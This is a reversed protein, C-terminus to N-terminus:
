RPLSLGCRLKATGGWGRRDGGLRGPSVVGLLPKGSLGKDALTTDAVRHDNRERVVGLLQLHHISSVRAALVAIMKADGGVWGDIEGGTVSGWV